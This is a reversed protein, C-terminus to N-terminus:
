TRQAAPWRLLQVGAVGAIGALLLVTGCHWVLVALNSAHPHVVCIGVNGLGAAALAALAATMRPTVSAGRRIMLAMAAGPVAAGVLITAVCQWDAHFVIEGPTEHVVGIIVTGLWVVLTVLPAWVIRRGHGPISTAFAAAAATLGTLLAALQEVVFRSEQLRVALDSRVPVAAILLGLYIFGAAAWAATRRWPRRLRRVPRTDRALAAILRETTM